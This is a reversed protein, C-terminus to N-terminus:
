HLFPVVREVEWHGGANEHADNQGKQAPQEPPSIEGNLRNRYIGSLLSFPSCLKVVSQVSKVSVISQQIPASKRRGDGYNIAPEFPCWGRRRVGWWPM